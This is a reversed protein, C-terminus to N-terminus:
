SEAGASGSHFTYHLIDFLLRAETGLPWRARYLTMDEESWPAFGRSERGLKLNFVRMFRSSSVSRPSPRLGRALSGAFVFKAKKLSAVGPLPKSTQNEPYSVNANASPKCSICCLQGCM